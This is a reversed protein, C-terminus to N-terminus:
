IAEKLRNGTPNVRLYYKKHFPSFEGELCLYNQKCFNAPDVTGECYRFRM